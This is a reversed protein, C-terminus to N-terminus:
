RFSSNEAPRTWVKTQAVVFKWEHIFTLIIEISSEQRCQARSGLRWESDVFDLILSHTSRKGSNNERRVKLLAFDSDEAIRVEGVNMM